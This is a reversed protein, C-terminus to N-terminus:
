EASNFRGAWRLANGILQQYAPIDYTAGQHGIASYLARGDGISHRWAIPHEGDMDDRGFLGDILALVAKSREVRARRMGQDIMENSIHPFNTFNKNM